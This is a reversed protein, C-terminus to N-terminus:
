GKVWKFLPRTVVWEDKHEVYRIYDQEVLRYLDQDIHARIIGKTDREVRKGLFRDNIKTNIWLLLENPLNERPEIRFRFSGPYQSILDIKPIM